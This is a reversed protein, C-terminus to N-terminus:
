EIGVGFDFSLRSVVVLIGSNSTYLVPSLPVGSTFFQDSVWIRQGDVYYEVTGNVDREIRLTVKLVGEIPPRQPARHPERNENAQPRVIMPDVELLQFEVGVLRRREDQFGIGFFIGRNLQAEDYDTLEMEAEIAQLRQPALPGFQREMFDSPFEVLIIGEGADRTAGLQWVGGAAPIFWEPNSWGYDNRNLLVFNALADQAFNLLPNVQSGDDLTPLPTELSPTFTATPITPTATAQTPTLSATQTLTPTEVTATPIVPSPSLETPSSQIEPAPTATFQKTQTENLPNTIERPRSEGTTDEDSSNSSGGGLGFLLVFAVIGIVVVVLAIITGWPLNSFTDRERDIVAIEDVFIPEHSRPIQGLPTDQLPLDAVTVGEFANTERPPSVTPVPDEPMMRATQQWVQFLRYAPHKSIFLSNFHADFESLKTSRSQPKLHTERLTQYMTFWQRLQHGYEGGLCTETNQMITRLANEVSPNPVEGVAVTPTTNSVREVELRATHNEAAGDRLMTVWRKFSEINIRAQKEATELQALAQDFLERAAHFEGDDWQRIGIELQRVVSQIQGLWQDALPQNLMQRLGILDAPSNVLNLAGQAELVLQRGTLHTDLLVFIPNSRVKTLTKLAAERWFRANEIDDQQVCMVGRWAYHLFLLRIGASSSHRLIEVVGRGMTKLYVDTSPMQAAFGERTANEDPLFAAIVAQESKDTTEYHAIGDNKMWEMAIHTIKELREIALRERPTQALRQMQPILEIVQDFKGQDWVVYGELLREGLKANLSLKEVQTSSTIHGALGEFWEGIYENLPKILRIMESLNTKVLTYQGLIFGDITAEWRETTTQLATLAQHLAPDSLDEGYAQLFKLVRGFWEGLDTGDAKPRFARLAQIAQHIEDFYDNLEAFTPNLPDILGATRLAEGAKSPATYAGMSVTQLAIVVGSVGDVARRYPDFLRNENVDYQAVIDRLLLELARLSEEVQQYMAQVARVGFATSPLNLLGIIQDILNRAEGREDLIELEMKLRALPPRLLRVQPAVQMLREALLMQDDTVNGNIPELLLNGARQPMEELLADIAKNLITLPDKRKQKELYEAAAIIFKLTPAMREDAEDLLELMVEIARGWNASDLYIRGADIAAQLELRHLAMLIEQKLRRTEPYSPVMHQAEDLLIALAELEKKSKRETLARRVENLIHDRRTEFPQRFDYLARRLDTMRAYRRRLVPHTAQTIISQLLPSIRPADDGFLVAHEGDTTTETDLRAGGAVIFYLLEGVQYIDTQPTINNTNGSEDLMVANGWDIVKLHYTDRNWFLHKADVDNYVVQQEHARILLDLLQDVILLMELTPLREGREALEYVMDAVVTGEAREIVIYTHAQPGVKFGGSGTLETLVPHGTLRELAKKEALISVQQAARMPPADQPAPRKVVVPRDHDEIDWARLTEGSRGRPYITDYRYRKDFIMQHLEDLM